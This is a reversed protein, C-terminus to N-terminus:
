HSTKYVTLRVPREYHPRKNTTKHFFLLNIKHNEKTNNNINFNKKLLIISDSTRKTKKSSTKKLFQLFKIISRNLLM